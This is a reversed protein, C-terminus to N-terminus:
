ISDVLSSRSRGNADFSRHLVGDILNPVNPIRHVMIMWQHMGRERMLIHFAVTTQKRSVMRDMWVNEDMIGIQKSSATESAMRFMCSTIYNSTVIVFLEVGEVHILYGLPDFNREEDHYPLHGRTLSPM